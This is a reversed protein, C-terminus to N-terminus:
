QKWGGLISGDWAVGEVVLGASSEDGWVSVCQCVSWLGREEM